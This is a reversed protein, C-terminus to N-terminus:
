YSCKKKYEQVINPIEDTELARPVEYEAKENKANRCHAEGEVKIASPAVTEHKSNFSSHSQRGMHWLQCFIHGGKKHVAETVKKWGEVQEKNFIGPAEYWGLGVESIGTAESIILGASARQEYYKVHIDTPVKNTARGRTLSAMFIRNPLTLTGYKLPKFLEYHETM